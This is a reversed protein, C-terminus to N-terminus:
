SSTKVLVPAVVPTQVIVPVAPTTPALPGAQNIKAVAHVAQNIQAAGVAVAAIGFPVMAWTIWEPPLYTMLAWVSLAVIASGAKMVLEKGAPALSQFWMWREGFASLLVGVLVASGGGYVVFKAVSILSTPDFQQFM